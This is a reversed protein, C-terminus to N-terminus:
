MMGQRLLSVTTRDQIVVIEWSSARPRIVFLYESFKTALTDAIEGSLLGIQMVDGFFSTIQQLITM